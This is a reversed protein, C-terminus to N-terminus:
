QKCRILEGMQFIQEIEYDPVEFENKAKLSKYKGHRLLVTQLGVQNGAAIEADIRNGVVIIQEKPYNKRIEKFCKIKESNCDCIFIKDFFNRIGLVDIKQNQLTEDGTTVLVKNFHNQELIEKIKPFLKIEFLEKLNDSLQGTRDYLTDDLDFIILM